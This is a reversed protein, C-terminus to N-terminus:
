TPLGVGDLRRTCGEILRRERERAGEPERSSGMPESPQTVDLVGGRKSGEVAEAVTRWSSGTRREM